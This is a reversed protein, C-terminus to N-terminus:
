YLSHVTGSSDKYALTNATTSYYVSDNGAETDALHAPKLSNDTNFLGRMYNPFDQSFWRYAAGLGAANLQSILNPFNPFAM